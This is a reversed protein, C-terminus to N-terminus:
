CSICHALENEMEFIQKKGFTEPRDLGPASLLPLVHEARDYAFGFAGGLALVDIIVAPKINLGTCWWLLVKRM